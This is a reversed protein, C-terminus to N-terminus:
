KRDPSYGDRTPVSARIWRNTRPATGRKFDQAALSREVLATFPIAATACVAASRLFSRRDM